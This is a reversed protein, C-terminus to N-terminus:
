RPRSVYETRTLEDWRVRTAPVSLLSAAVLDRQRRVPRQEPHGSIRGNWEIRKPYVM